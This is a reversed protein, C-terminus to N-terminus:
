SSLGMYHGDLSHRASTHVLAQDAGHMERVCAATVAPEAGAPTSTRQQKM